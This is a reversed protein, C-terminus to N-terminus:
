SSLRHVGQSNCKLSSGPTVQTQAFWEVDGVLMGEVSVAYSGPLLNSETHVQGPSLTISRSGSPGQFHVVAQDIALHNANGSVIQLTIGAEETTPPTVGPSDCALLALFVVTVARKMLNM